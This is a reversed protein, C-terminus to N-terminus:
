HASDPVANDCMPLGFANVIMKAMQARRTNEMPKYTGDPYGSVVGESTLFEIYGAAWWGPQGPAVDPYVTGTPAPPVFSPGYAARTIFTAMQARTVPDNPCYLLPPGQSCGTTIGDAYLQEIYDANPTSECVVDAFTGQCPMPTFDPGHYVKVLWNAMVSRTMLDTPCFNGDGCGLTIRAGALAHVFADGWFSPAVDNFAKTFCVTVDDVDYPTDNSVKINARYLGYHSAGDAIFQADIPLHGENAPVLGETPNLVLWPLNG